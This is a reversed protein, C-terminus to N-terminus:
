RTKDENTIISTVQKHNNFNPGAMKHRFKNSILTATGSGNHQYQGKETKPMKNEKSIEMEENPILMEQDRNIGTELIIAGDM